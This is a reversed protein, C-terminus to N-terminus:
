MEDRKKLLEQKSNVGMKKYIHYTHSKVTHPSVFLKEAVSNTDYGRMLLVLVDLERHSLDYDEALIKCKAEDEDVRAASESAELRRGSLSDPLAKIEGSAVVMIFLFVVLVLPVLFLNDQSLDLFDALLLNLTGALAMGLQIHIRGRAISRIPTLRLKATLDFLFCFSAVDFITLLMLLLLYLVWRGMGAVFTLLMLAIAIVPLLATVLENFSFSRGTLVNVLLLVGVGLGLFLGTLPYSVFVPLDPAMCAYIGVGFVAGYIVLVINSKHLSKSLKRSLPQDGMTRKPWFQHTFVYCVLSLFALLLAMYMGASGAMLTTVVFIAAGVVVSLQMCRKARVEDLYVCAEAWLIHFVGQWLGAALMLAACVWGDLSGEVAYAVVLAVLVVFAAVALPVRFRRDRLRGYLGYILMEFLVVGWLYCMRGVDRQVVSLAEIPTFIFSYAFIYTVAWCLAFGVVVFPMFQGYLTEGAGSETREKM